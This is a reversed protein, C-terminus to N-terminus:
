CWLQFQARIHTPAVQFRQCTEFAVSAGRPNWVQWRSLADFKNHLTVYRLTGSTEEPIDQPLLLSGVSTLASLSSSSSSSPYRACLDCAVCLRETMWSKGNEQLLKLHTWNGRTLILSSGIGRNRKWWVSVSVKLMLQNRYGDSIEDWIIEKFGESFKPIKEPSYKM